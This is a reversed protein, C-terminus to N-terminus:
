LKLGTVENFLKHLSDESHTNVAAELNDNLLKLLEFDSLAAMERIVDVIGEMTNAPIVISPM